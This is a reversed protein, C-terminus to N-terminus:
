VLFGLSQMFDIPDKAHKEHNCGECLIQLNRPWNSGGRSLAVIHDVHYKVLKRKCVACRKKQRELIALVDEHTHSGEAAKIRARRNRAYLAYLHPKEFMHRQKDAKVQEPHGLRWKKARRAGGKPDLLNRREIRLREREPNLQRQIKVRENVEDAHLRRWERAQTRHWEPDANYRERMRLREKERGAEGAKERREKNYAALCPACYAHLGMAGRPNKRFEAVPKIVRCRRCEKELGSMLRLMSL